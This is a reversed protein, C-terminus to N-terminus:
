IIFSTCNLRNGIGFFLEQVSCVSLDAMSTARSKDALLLGGVQSRMAVRYTKFKSIGDDPIKPLVM